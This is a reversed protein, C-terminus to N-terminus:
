SDLWMRVPLAIHAAIFGIAWLLAAVIFLRTSWKKIRQCSAALKPDAPCLNRASYLQWASILLLSGSFLFIWIKHNALSNLFPLEINLAVLVSGLGLSVLIIPLACCVLTGSSALLAFTSFFLSNKGTEM